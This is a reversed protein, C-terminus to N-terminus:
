SFVDGTCKFNKENEDLDRRTTADNLKLHLHERSQKM